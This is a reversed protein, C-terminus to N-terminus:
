KQIKRFGQEWLLRTIVGATRNIWSHGKGPPTVHHLAEHILTNLYQRSKQRPDIEILKLGYYYLGLVGYRGLKCEVVKVGRKRRKM